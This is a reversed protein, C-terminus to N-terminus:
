AAIAGPVVVQELKVAEASFSAWSPCDVKLITLTGPEYHTIEGHTLTMALDGIGPNHAVVLLKKISSDIKKIEALIQEAPAQYLRRDFNSSVSFGAKTFLTGFILRATQITRVSSSSLTFEPYIDHAQMFKGLALAEETGQPSLIREYDGMLPPAAAFTHAHRLLYLTKM